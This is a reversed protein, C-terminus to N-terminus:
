RAALTSLVLAAFNESTIASGWSGGTTNKGFWQASGNEYYVWRKFYVARTVGSTTADTSGNVVMQGGGSISWTNSSVDTITAGGPTIVTGEYSISPPAGAGSGPIKIIIPHDSVSVTVSTGSSTSIPSTGSIPDYVQITTASSPLTVTINYPSATVTSGNPYITADICVVIYNSGDASQMQVYFGYPVTGSALRTTNPLGTVTVPYATPTYSVANTSADAVISCFNRLTTAPAKAAGSTSFIGFHDQDTGYQSDDLVEYIVGLKVGYSAMLCLMNLMYKANVTPTGYYNDVNGSTTDVFGFETFAVPLNIAYGTSTNIDWTFQPTCCQGGSAYFHVNSLHAISPISLGLNSAATVAQSTASGSSPLALSWLAVQAKLKWDGWLDAQAAIVGQWGYYTAGAKNTYSANVNNFGWSPNDVELMGEVIRIKGSPLSNMFGSWTSYYNSGPAYGQYIDLRLNPRASCLATLKSVSGTTDDRLTYPGTGQLGQPNLYDFAATIYATNGPATSYQTHVQLGIMSMFSGVSIMTM